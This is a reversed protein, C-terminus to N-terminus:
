LQMAILFMPFSVLTKDASRHLISFLKNDWYVHQIYGYVNPLADLCWSTVEDSRDTKTDCYLQYPAVFNIAFIPALVLIACFWSVM